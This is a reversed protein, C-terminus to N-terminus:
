VSDTCSPVFYITLKEDKGTKRLSILSKLYHLPAISTVDLLM